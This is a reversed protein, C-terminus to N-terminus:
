LKPRSSFNLLLSINHFRLDSVSSSETINMLGISYRLEPSIRINGIGLDYGIGLDLAVDDRTPLTSSSEKGIPIKVNPGLVFYLSSPCPKARVKLHSILELDVPKVALSQSGDRFKINNFSLEAKPQISIRKTFAFDSILGLRFGIGNEIFGQTAEDLLLNAHNVGINFGTTFRKKDVQSQAIGSGILLVALVILKNM